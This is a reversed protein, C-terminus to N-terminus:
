RSSLWRDAPVSAVVRLAQSNGHFYQDHFIFDFGALVQALPQALSTEIGIQDV